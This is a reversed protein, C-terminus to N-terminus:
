RNINRLEILPTQGVRTARQITKIEDLSYGVERMMREYDFACGEVEFRDYDIGVAKKMIENKRAMVSQYSTM